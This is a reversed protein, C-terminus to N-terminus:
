WFRWAIMGVLFAVPTVITGVLSSFSGVKFFSGKSTSYYIVDNPKIYYFESEIISETKLNFTKIIDKGNENRLIKVKTLDVNESVNGSVSLAQYITMNDKFVGYRGNKESSVVYFINNRLRVRVQVDPFSERMKRQIANEAENITMDLIYVDGFFPISINGNQYIIYSSNGGVSASSSLIGNFSSAFETNSTLIICNIEDNVQLKYEELLKTPYLPDRQQLLNTEKPSTCSSLFSVVCFFLIFRSINKNYLKM